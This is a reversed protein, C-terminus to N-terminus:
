ISSALRRSPFFPSCRRPVSPSLFHPLPGLVGCSTRLPIPHRTIPSHNRLRYVLSILPLRPSRRRVSSLFINIGLLPLVFLAGPSTPANQAKENAGTHMDGQAQPPAVHGAHVNARLPVCNPKDASRPFPKPKDASPGDSRGSYSNRSGQARKHGHKWKFRAGSRLTM